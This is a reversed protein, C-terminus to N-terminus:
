RPEDLIVSLAPRPCSVREDPRCDDSERIPSWIRFVEFPFSAHGIRGRLPIGDSDEEGDSRRVSGCSEDVLHRAESWLIDVEGEEGPSLSQDASPVHEVDVPRFEQHSPSRLRYGRRPRCQEREKDSSRRKRPSFHDASQVIELRVGGPTADLRREQGSELAARVEEHGQRPHRRHRPTCAGDEDRVAVVPVHERELVAGRHLRSAQQVEAADLGVLVDLAQDLDEPLQVIRLEDEADDALRGSGEGLPDGPGSGEVGPDRRAEAEHRVLLHDGLHGRRLQHDERCRSACSPCGAPRATARGGRGRAACGPSRGARRRPRAPTPACTRRRSRGRRGARRRGHSRRDGRM